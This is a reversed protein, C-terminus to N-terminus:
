GNQISSLEKGHLIVTRSTSQGELPRTLLEFTPQRHTKGVRKEMLSLRCKEIEEASTRMKFARFILM